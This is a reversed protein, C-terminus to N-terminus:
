SPSTRRSATTPTKRGSSRVRFSTSSTSSATRPKARTWNRLNMAGHLPFEHRVDDASRPKFTGQLWEAVPYFNILEALHPHRGLAQARAGPRGLRADARRKRDSAGVPRHAADGLDPLPSAAPKKKSSKKPKAPAEPAVDAVTEAAEAPENAVAEAVPEAAQAEVAEEAEVPEAPQVPEVPQAAKKKAAAKAAEKAAKAAEKLAAKAAAAEEEEKVLLGDKTAVTKLKPPNPVEDRKVHVTGATLFEPWADRVPEGGAIAGVAASLGRAAPKPSSPKAAKTTSAPEKAQEALEGRRRVQGGQGDQGDERDEGDQRGEGDEEGSGERTRAQFPRPPRRGPPRM